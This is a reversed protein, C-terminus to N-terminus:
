GVSAQTVVSDEEGEEGATWPETVNGPYGPDSVGYGRKTVRVKIGGKEGVTAYSGVCACGDANRM